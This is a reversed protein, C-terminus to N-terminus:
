PPPPGHYRPDLNPINTLDEKTFGSSFFHNQVEVVEKSTYVWTGDECVLEDSKTRTKLKSNAYIWFVQKNKLKKVLDHEFAKGLTRTLSKLSNHTRAFRANDLHDESETFRKWHHNKKNKCKMAEQILYKNKKRKVSKNKPICDEIMKTYTGACYDWADSHNLIEM